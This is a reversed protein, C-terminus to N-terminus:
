DRQDVSERAKLRRQYRAVRTRLQVERKRSAELKAELEEVRGKLQNISGQDRMKERRMYRVLTTAKGFTSTFDNSSQLPVTAGVDSVDDDITEALVGTEALDTLEEEIRDAMGGEEGPPLPVLWCFGGDSEIGLESWREVELAALVEDTLRSLVHGQRKRGADWVHLFRSARVQAPTLREEYGSQRAPPDVLVGPRAVRLLGKGKRVEFRISYTPDGGPGKRVWFRFHPSASM